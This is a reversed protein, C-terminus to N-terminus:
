MGAKEADLVIIYRSAPHWASLHRRKRTSRAYDLITKAKGKLSSTSSVVDVIDNSVRVEEIVEEPYSYRM